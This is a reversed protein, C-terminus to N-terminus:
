GEFGKSLKCPIANIERFSSCPMQHTPLDMEFIEYGWWFRRSRLSVGEGEHNLAFSRYQKGVQQQAFLSGPPDQGVVKWLRDLQTHYSIPDSGRHLIKFIDMVISFVWLHLSVMVALFISLSRTLLIIRSFVFFFRVVDLGSSSYLFFVNCCLLSRFVYAHSNVENKEIAVGSKQERYWVNDNKKAGMFSSYQYSSAILIVFTDISADVSTHLSSSIRKSFDVEGVALRFLQCM